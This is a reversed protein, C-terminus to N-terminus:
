RQSGTPLTHPWTEWIYAFGLSRVMRALEGVLPLSTGRLLRTTRDVGLLRQGFAVGCSLVIVGARLPSPTQEARSCVFDVTESRSSDPLAPLELSLLRDAFLGFPGESSLVASV